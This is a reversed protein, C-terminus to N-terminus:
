DTVKFEVNWTHMVDLNLILAARLIGRVLEMPLAASALRHFEVVEGDSILGKVDMRMALLPSIASYM